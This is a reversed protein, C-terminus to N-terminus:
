RLDSFCKIMHLNIIYSQLRSTIPTYSYPHAFTPISGVFRTTCASIVNAFILGKKLQFLYKCMYVQLQGSYIASSQM